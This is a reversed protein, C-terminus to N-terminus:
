RWLDANKQIELAMFRTNQLNRVGYHLPKFTYRVGYIPMKGYGWRWLDPIKPIELAMILSNQLLQLLRLFCISFIIKTLCLKEVFIIAIFKDSKIKAVKKDVFCFVM